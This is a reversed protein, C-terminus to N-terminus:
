SMFPTATRKGSFLWNYHTPWTNFAEMRSKVKLSAIVQMLKTNFIHRIFCKTTLNYSLMAFPKTVKRDWAEVWRM